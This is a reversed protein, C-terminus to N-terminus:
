YIQTSSFSSHMVTPDCLKHRLSANTSTHTGTGAPQCYFCKLDVLRSPRPRPCAAPPIILINGPCCPGSDGPTGLSPHPEAQVSSSLTDLSAGDLLASPYRPVGATPLQIHTSPHSSVLPDCVAAPIPSAWRHWLLRPFSCGAPFRLLSCACVEQPPGM